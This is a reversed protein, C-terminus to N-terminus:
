NLGREQWQYVVAARQMLLDGSYLEYHVTLTEAQHKILSTKVDFIQEGFPTRMHAQTKHTLACHITTQSEESERVIKVEQQDLSVTVLAQTSPEQYNLVFLTPTSILEFRDLEFDSSSDLTKIQICLRKM